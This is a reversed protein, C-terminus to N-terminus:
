EIDPIIAAPKKPDFWAVRRDDGKRAGVTVWVHKYPSKVNHIERCGTWRLRGEPEMNSNGLGGNTVWERVVLRIFEIKKRFDNAQPIGQIMPDIDPRRRTTSRTPKTMFNLLTQLPYSLRQRDDLAAPSITGNESLDRAAELPLHYFDCWAGNASIVIKTHDPFNFQPHNAISVPFYPLHSVQFHGDSFGWCGVDGFRQYFTVVNGASATDSKNGSPFRAVADDYPFDQDKGYATMYNAFKRWLVIKERKRDDWKDTGRSLKGTKGLGDVTVTYTKPDVQGYSIGQEGRNEYFEIDAGSIPVLQLRDDYSLTNRNQLHREADHVLVCAPPTSGKSPVSPDVPASKFICGVSGNSLIYGLGFKNTYDVWKVVITPNSLTSDYTVATSRSNLARELEAQLRRLGSLIQDPKTGSVSQLNERPSFLSPPAGSRQPTNTEQPKQEGGITKLQTALDVAIRGEVTVVEEVANRGLRQSNTRTYRSSTARAPRVVSESVSRPLQRSPQAESEAKRPRVPRSPLNLVQPRARQQAAFSQTNPRSTPPIAQDNLKSPSTPEFVASSASEPESTEADEVIRSAQEKLWEDFPRYVVDEPLPVHPTLGAKEEAAVERYTSTVRKPSASWPGVDCELCLKKLNSLYLNQRGGRSGVTLFQVPTPHRERLEPVIEEAQPMWGCTFFPHQVITDPGPRKEPSQLLTAVLDKTEDSIFNESTDLKPWDYERERARRYIEDATTSQFPPKGTLMAFRDSNTRPRWVKRTVYMIIGLSWIDVAHDHGGKNKELIEPAIYNPTGCLTTRRVAVMDKGSMLLAALGFDGIKINMDKDLFINGMKLDRHIVGKSHMYKIGGAMQVTWFRVEPETVYRRKKVMDM